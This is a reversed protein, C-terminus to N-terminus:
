DSLWAQNTKKLLDKLIENELQKEELEKRLKRNEASATRADLDKGRLWSFVTAPPVQHRRAVMTANGTEKAEKVVQARMEVSYKSM